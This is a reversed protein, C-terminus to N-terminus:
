DEFIMKESPFIYDESMIATEIKQVINSFEHTLKSILEIYEQYNNCLIELEIDWPSIQRVLHVIRSDKRTYEFFKTEDEKSLKKFYIFTKYFEYGLKNTNIRATYRTIIKKEELNKMRNRVIDITSHTNKSIEVLTKKGDLFLEKLIEKELKTLENNVTEGILKNWYTDKSNFLTKDCINVDVLVATHMDLILNNFKSLLENKIEYFEENNKVFYTLGANWSGEAIGLWFLRKDKKVHQIFEKKKEPINALTLYIKASTYGLKTPDIWITFGEIIGKEKLQKIRYRASEKSRRIKKALQTDPIRCQKDLEYLIIKDIKDLIEVM